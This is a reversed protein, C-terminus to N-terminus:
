RITTIIVPTATERQKELKALRRALKARLHALHGINVAPVRTLEECIHTIFYAIFFKYHVTGVEGGLLSCLARQVGLRLILWAPSRRWPNKAGDDWFVEDRVRKRTITMPKTSGNAQLITM